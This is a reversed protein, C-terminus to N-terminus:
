RYKCLDTCNYRTDYEPVITVPRETGCNGGLDVSWVCWLRMIAACHFCGEEDDEKREKVKTHPGFTTRTSTTSATSWKKRHRTTSRACSSAVVAVVVAVIIRTVLGVVISRTRCTVTGTGAIRDAITRAIEVM